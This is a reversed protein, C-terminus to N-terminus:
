EPLPGVYLPYGDANQVVAWGRPLPAAYSRCTPAAAAAPEAGEDPPPARVWVRGSAYLGDFVDPALLATRPDLPLLENWLRRLRERPDSSPVTTRYCSVDLAAPRPVCSFTQFYPHVPAGTKQGCAECEYEIRDSLLGENLRWAHPVTGRLAVVENRLRDREGRLRALLARRIDRYGAVEVAGEEALKRYAARAEDREREATALREVARVREGPFAADALGLLRNLTTLHKDLSARKAANGRTAKGPTAPLAVADLMNRNRAADYHKQCLGRTQANAVCKAIRCVHAYDPHNVTRSLTLDVTEPKTPTPKEPTTRLTDLAEIAQALASRAEALARNAAVEEAEQTKEWKAGVDSLDAGRRGRAIDSARHVVAWMTAREASLRHVTASEAREFAKVLADAADLVRAEEPSTMTSMTTRYCSVDLAALM